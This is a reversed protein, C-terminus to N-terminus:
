CTDRCKSGGDLIALGEYRSFSTAGLNLKFENLSAGSHRRLPDRDKPHVTSVVRRDGVNYKSSGVAM